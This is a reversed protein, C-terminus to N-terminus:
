ISKLVKITEGMAKEYFAELEKKIAEPDECRLCRIALLKTEHLSFRRILYKIQALSGLSVSLDSAGLGILLPAFLPDAALEGCVSVPVNRMKGQKFIFNLTRIVSPQNPEYLYAIRDNIRDVALLYQMLDNTGISFFDCHDALLDTIVAASPVEIMAGKQIDSGIPVNEAELEKRAEELLANARKLEVLSSIMPYLIKVAGFQSARLIARLQDKFLDSHELCFRIGRFGMFPNAEQYGTLSRHPNKDGGLDLTRITVPNPSMCQVLGKYVEFQEDESPFTSSSLFLNETRFLGIGGAGSKQMRDHGEVGEINLMVKLEVSDLTVCPENLEELFREEIHRQETALRGYRELTEQSPNLYVFGKYGDVLIEEGFDAAELIDHVGVVCPINLSRAMIVSHSTRSGSETVIGMVEDVDLLATESPSLDTSILVHKGMGSFGHNKHDRGLLNFILRKTVDRIDTVREKIYDDDIQAFADIYRNAVEHFCYEINFGTEVVEQITDEILARDELVLQHADFISAEEEGVKEEVEARIASIQRRTEMLGQEFRAIEEEKREPPVSYRPVELEGQHFSFLPGHVVGPAAAIGSFKREGQNNKVM